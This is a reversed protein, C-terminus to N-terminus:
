SAPENALHRRQRDSTSASRKAQAREFLSGDRTERLFEPVDRKVVGSYDYSLAERARIPDVGRRQTLYIWASKVLNVLAIGHRQAHRESLFTSFEFFEDFMSTQRRDAALEKFLSLTSGFNGSNAYLDWFKSFRSIAQLQSFSMTSTQLVQFPAVESYIMAWSETHRIIPTGKLRKLIGVQIEHPALEITRNFGEAFTKVTEGPLGAILDAHLHVKTQTTLFRFNDQTRKFDQRRSIRKSVEPDWTQIGIEFQLSGAPFQKIIQKLEEPLRDPVLEFHLFLGLSIRALFFNLIKTGTPISLNFTRDVFKFQRAGRTILTQMDSLFNDLDFNRVSIDMSSLCFECKYPCGRSAEVYLVRNKIDEDTYDAYPSKVEALRPLVPRIFKAEPLRNEILYDHCFAYFLLDSEGLFVFDALDCIKQTESEYSVEPGGVVVKIEPRLNKILTIVEHTQRINWIYVGFGIVRPEDSILREALDVAAEELTGEVLKCVPKLDGLNAYLYRLGLSAHQYRANITVLLIQTPGAVGHGKSKTKRVQPKFGARLFEFPIKKAALQANRFL